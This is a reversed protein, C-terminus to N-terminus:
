ASQDVAVTLTQLLFGHFCTGLSVAFVAMESHTSGHFSSHSLVAVTLVQIQSDYLLSYVDMWRDVSCCNCAGLESNGAELWFLAKVHYAAM